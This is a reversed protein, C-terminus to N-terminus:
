VGVPNTLIEPIATAHAPSQLVHETVVVLQVLQLIRLKSPLAQTEFQVTPLM